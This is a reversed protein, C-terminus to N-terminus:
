RVEASLVRHGTHPGAAHEPVIVRPRGAGGGHVVEGLPVPSDGSEKRRRLVVCNNNCHRAAPPPCSAAEGSGGTRAARRCAAATGGAGPLM